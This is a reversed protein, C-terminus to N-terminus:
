DFTINIQLGKLTEIIQNVCVTVYDVSKDAAQKLADVAKDGGAKIIKDDILNNKDGSLKGNKIAEGLYSKLGQKLAVGALDKGTSKIAAIFGKRKGNEYDWFWHWLLKYAAYSAIWRMTASPDSFAYKETAKDSFGGVRKWLIECGITYWDTDWKDISVNIVDCITDYVQGSIFAGFPGFAASAVVSFSKDAGWKVIEYKTVADDWIKAEELYDRGEQIIIDRAVIWCKHRYDYLEEWGMALKCKELMWLKQDRIEPPLYKNIIDKCNQYEEDWKGTGPMYAPKIKVPIELEYTEEGVDISVPIKGVFNDDKSGPINKNVSLKYVASPLNSARVRDYKISLGSVNFVKESNSDDTETEDIVLNDGIYKADAEVAKKEANWKLLCLDLESVIYSGDAQVAANVELFGSERNLGSSIFLGERYVVVEFNDKIPEEGGEAKVEIKGTSYYDSLSASKKEIDAETVIIKGEKPAKGEEVRVTCLKEADKDREPTVIWKTGEDGGKITYKIESEGASKSLLTAKYPDFSIKAPANFPLEIDKSETAGDYVGSIRVVIRTPPEAEPDDKKVGYIAATKWDSFDQESDKRAFDQGEVIEITIGSTAKANVVEEGKDNIDVFQGYVWIPQDDCKLVSDKPSQYTKFEYNKKEKNKDGGFCLGLFFALLALLADIGAAGFSTSSSNTVFGTRYKM